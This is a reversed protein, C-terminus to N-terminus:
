LHDTRNLVQVCLLSSTPNTKMHNYQNLRLRVGPFHHDGVGSKNHEDTEDSLERVVSVGLSVRGDYNM